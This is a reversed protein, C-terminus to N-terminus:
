ILLSKALIATYSAVNYRYLLYVHRALKASHISTVLAFIYGPTTCPKGPITYLQDTGRSCDTAAFPFCRESGSGPIYTRLPKAPPLPGVCVGRQVM